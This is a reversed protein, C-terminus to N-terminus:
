DQKKTEPRRLGQSPDVDLPCTGVVINKMAGNRSSKAM